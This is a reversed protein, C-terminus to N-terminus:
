LSFILSMNFIRVNKCIKIMFYLYICNTLNNNIKTVGINKYYM